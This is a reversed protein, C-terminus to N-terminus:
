NHTEAAIWSNSPNRSDWLKHTTPSIREGTVFGACKFCAGMRLDQHVGCVKCNGWQSISVYTDKDM